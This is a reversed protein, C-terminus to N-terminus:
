HQTNSTNQPGVSPLAPVVIQSLALGVPGAMNAAVMAMDPRMFNSALLMADEHEGLAAAVIFNAFACEDGGVCACKPQHRQLPRRSHILVMSMLKEFRAMQSRATKKGYHGHFDRWISAQGEPSDCWLRLYMIVAAELRPLEELLGVPAAGRNDYGISM